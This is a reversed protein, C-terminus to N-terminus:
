TAPAGQRSGKCIPVEGGSIGMWHPALFHGTILKASSVSPQLPAVPELAEDAPILERDDDCKGLERDLDEGDQPGARRQDPTHGEHERHEKQHRRRSWRLKHARRNHERRSRRGGARAGAHREGGGGAHEHYPFTQMLAAKQEDSLPEGVVEQSSSSAM